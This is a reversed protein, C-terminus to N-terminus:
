SHQPRETTITGVGDIGASGGASVVVGIDGTLYLVFCYLIPCLVTMFDVYM